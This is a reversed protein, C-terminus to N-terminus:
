AAAKRAVVSSRPLPDEEQYQHVEMHVDQFTATPHDRAWCKIDRCLSLDKLNVVLQEKLLTDKNPVAESSLQEICSFLAMLVHAFDQVSEQDGQHTVFFKRREQTETLQERFVKRLINFVGLSNSWHTTPQLKLEEKAVGELHFIAINVTRSDAQGRVARQADSIWDELM